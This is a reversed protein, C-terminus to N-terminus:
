AGMAAEPLAFHSPTGYSIDSAWVQNPRTPHSAPEEIKFVRPAIPNSHNSDTTRVKFRKKYIGTIEADKMLKSVRAKGCSHGNKKLEVRIRPLGYTGRSDKHIFKIKDMLIKNEIERASEPRDKWFYYGSRSVGLAACSVKIEVASEINM